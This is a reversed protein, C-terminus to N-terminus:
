CVFSQLDHAGWNGTKIWQVLTENPKANAIQAQYALRAQIVSDLSRGNRQIALFAKKAQAKRTKPEAIAWFDEFDRESFSAYSAIAQEVFEKPTPFKYADFDAVEIKTIQEFVRLCQASFQEATLCRAITQRWLELTTHNPTCVLTYVPLFKGLFEKRSIKNM